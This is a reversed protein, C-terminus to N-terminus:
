NKQQAYLWSFLEPHAFASDWSNHNAEPFETYKVAGNAEKLAKVMERSNQPPVVDDKSGHFVWIDVNKAYKYASGPNGGGCIPFAAAFTDPLRSLLEFTGMGGMSLGGIYVRNTDVYPKKLYSNLMEMVLAMSTTPAKEDTFNYNRKGENQSFDVKAWFDDKPCQPFIVISPNQDRNAENLFLKSGHVLQSENNNGREGAGHLFLVLPYKKEPSFDKPMIFRYPLSGTESKFLQEEFEVQAFAGNSSLLSAVSLIFICINNM